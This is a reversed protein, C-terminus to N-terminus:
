IRAPPNERPLVPIMQITTGGGGLRVMSQLALRSPKHLLVLGEALNVIDRCRIFM